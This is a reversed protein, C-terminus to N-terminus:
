IKEKVIQLKNAKFKTMKRINYLRWCGECDVKPVHVAKYRPHKTCQIAIM